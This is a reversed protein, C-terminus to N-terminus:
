KDILETKPL